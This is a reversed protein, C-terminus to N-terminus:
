LGHKRLIAATRHEAARERLAARTVRGRGPSVRGCSACLSRKTSNFHHCKPCRWDTDHDGSSLDPLRLLKAMQNLSIPEGLKGQLSHLELLHLIFSNRRRVEGSKKGGRRGLQRM